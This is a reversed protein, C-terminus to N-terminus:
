NSEENPILGENNNQTEPQESLESALKKKKKKLFFYIFIGLGILIASLVCILVIYITKFKEKKVIEKEKEKGRPGVTGNSEFLYGLTKSDQNFIFKYKKLFPYGLYIVPSGGFCMLFIYKDGIDLFLDDKTFTFNMEFENITFKWPKFNNLDIDKDCYYYYISTGIESTSKRFCKSTNILPEFFDKKVYDEMDFSGKIFGFEIRLINVKKLDFYLKEEGYYIEDFIFAWDLSFDVKSVSFFSYDTNNYLEPNTENPLSGIIIKGTDNSDFDFYFDYRSILDRKKLQNILNYGSFDMEANAHPQILLGLIGPQTLVECYADYCSDGIELANIFQYNEIKNNDFSISEKALTGNSFIEFTFYQSKEIPKYTGSKLENYKGKDYNQCNKSIVLTNYEGLCAALTIKQWPTGISINVAIDKYFYDLIFEKEGKEHKYNGVKFPIEFKSYSFLISKILLILFFNNLSM